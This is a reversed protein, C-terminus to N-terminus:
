FYIRAGIQLSRSAMASTVRGFNANTFEAVPSGYTVVNLVNYGEVRLQAMYREKFPFNRFVSMDMRKIADSRLVNRGANGFTFAAPAAFAERAFWRAPTPNEVRWDGVVNPRMANGGTNSIDGAITLNVPQGSRIDALGNVQWNGLIYDAVRNNTRLAKNKGFPLDYVWSLVLNHPVDYSSVSRDPRMDYPNQISNGEVGFFGSSGPDISKSWTYAATLALGNAWRREFSTQLGHYSATGWSRDFSSPPSIM